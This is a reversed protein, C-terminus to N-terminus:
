LPHYSKVKSRTLPDTSSSGKESIKAIHLPNEELLKIPTSVSWRHIRHRLKASKNREMDEKAKWDLNGIVVM